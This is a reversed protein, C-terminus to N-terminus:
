DHRIVALYILRRTHFTLKEYARLAATNDPRTHLFPTKGRRMVNKIVATLLAQAYGKGQFDPHTCVASIETYDQLDLREGAMAALQGQVRIGVYTGLEHTKQRFPGPKTLQTLALMEPIDAEALQIITANEIPRQPLTLPPNAYVMQTLPGGVDLTWGQPVAAPENLFLVLQEGPPSLKALSAYAAKSQDIMGALPGVATPFRRALRDGDAWHSQESVLAEWVPNDLVYQKQL